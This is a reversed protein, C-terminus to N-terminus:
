VRLREKLELYQNVVSVTLEGVPVDLVVAGGGRLAALGRDRDMLVSSAAAREYLETTSEPRKTSAAQLTPDSMTVVLPLHRPYTATVHAILRRSAEVDILDTFLVALSRKRARDRLHYMAARYDPETLTAETDYLAHLLRQLHEKGKRPPVMSRVRDAFIILGVADDKRLAVYALMLAANIAHDLKSLGEIEASMMRGADILLMITRSREEEYQRTFPRGRRATAKWDIRRYEDDPVYERLSEFQTGAGRAMARRFGADELRQSRLLIDYRRVALIDPYVDAEEAAPMRTQWRTLGLFSWGRVFIDGFPHRGRSRPRTTYTTEGDTHPPLGLSLPQDPTDFEPPPSDVLQLRLTWRSLNRVQLRVRNDAGLSLKRDFARAASFRQARRSLRNDVVTIAIVSGCWALGLWGMSPEAGSLAMLPVGLLFLVLFLPTPIM